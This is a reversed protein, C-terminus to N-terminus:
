PIRMVRRGRENGSPARGHGIGGSPYLPLPVRCITVKDHMLRFIDFFTDQHTICTCTGELTSTNIRACFALVSKYTRFRREFSRNGFAGNWECHMRFGFHQYVLVGLSHGSFERQTLRQVISTASSM